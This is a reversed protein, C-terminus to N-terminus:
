LGEAEETAVPEPQGSIGLAGLDGPDIEVGLRNEDFGELEGLDDFGLLGGHGTEDLDISLAPDVGDIAVAEPAALPGGRTEAGGEGGVALRGEIPDAQGVADIVEGLAPVQKDVPLEGEDIQAEKVVGAAGEILKGDEGIAVGGRQEIVEVRAVLVGEEGVGRAVAQWVVPQYSVPEVGTEVLAVGIGVEVAEAVDGFVAEAGAGHEGVRVAVAEVVAELVEEAVIGGHRFSVGEACYGEGVTELAVGGTGEKGAGAEPGDIPLAGGDGGFRIGGFTEVVKGVRTVVGDGQGAKEFVGGGM